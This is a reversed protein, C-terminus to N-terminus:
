APAAFANVLHDRLFAVRPHSMAYRNCGLLLENGCRGKDEWIIALRGANLAERCLYDPIVSVGLGAAVSATVGRLDPVILAPERRIDLDFVERWYRRLIPLDGAYAVLPQALVHTLRESDPLGALTQDLGASGILVFRERYLPVYTVAPSRIRLTSIALDLKGEALATVLDQSLGFRIRVQIRNALADGLRPCIMASAFEAPGGLHVTGPFERRGIKASLVATDVADLHPGVARALDAAAPTPRVGRGQKEFLAKGLRSELAKLHGSAGPQTIGLHEAARTVSGMRYVALFTQILTLENM